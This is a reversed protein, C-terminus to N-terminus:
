LKEVADILSAELQKIEDQREVHALVDEAFTKEVLILTAYYNIAKDLAKKALEIEKKLKNM